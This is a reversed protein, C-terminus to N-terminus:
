HSCPCASCNMQDMWIAIMICSLMNASSLIFIRYAREKMHPPIACTKPQSHSFSISDWEEMNEVRVSIIPMISSSYMAQNSISAPLVVKLSAASSSANM